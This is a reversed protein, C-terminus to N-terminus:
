SRAFSHRRLTQLFLKGNEKGKRAARCGLDSRPRRRRSTKLDRETLCVVGPLVGRSSHDTRRVSSQRVVCLCAYCVFM